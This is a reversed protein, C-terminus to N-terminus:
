VSYITPLTLHTYSVADDSRRIEAEAFERDDSEMFEMLWEVRKKFSRTVRVCVVHPVSRLLATAGWGRLVIGGKNALELVEEATYLAFREKDTTLREVLGAKGERLRNILSTPVHMKGAVHEAVEHRMVALNMTKALQLAVDKSLSGMEQTMAIVPM